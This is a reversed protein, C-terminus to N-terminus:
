FLSPQEVMPVGKASMEKRMMEPFATDSRKLFRFVCVQVTDVKFMREGEVCKAVFDMDGHMALVMPKLDNLMCTHRQECRAQGMVGYEPHVINYVGGQAVDMRKLPVIEAWYNNLLKTANTTVTLNM